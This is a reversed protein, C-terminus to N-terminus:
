RSFLRLLLRSKFPILISRNARQHRRLRIRINWWILLLIILRLWVIRIVLIAPLGPFSPLLRNSSSGSLRETSPVNLRSICRERGIPLWELRRRHWLISVLIERSRRIAFLRVLHILEVRGSVLRNWLLRVVEIFLIEQFHSAIFDTLFM